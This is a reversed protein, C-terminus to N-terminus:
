ILFILGLYMLARAINGKAPLKSPLMLLMFVLTNFIRGWAPIDTKGTATMIFLTILFVMLGAYGAFMTCITKKQFELVATRVENKRDLRIYIWEVTGCFVHHTVIPILFVMASIFMINAAAASISSMWHSLAIYRFGFLMIAFTGMVMSVLPFSLPMDAFMAHMKDADNIDKLDLRGKKSYGLLCDSVGCLIHGILGMILAAKIM